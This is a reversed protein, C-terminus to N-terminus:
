EWSYLTHKPTHNLRGVPVGVHSLRKMLSFAALEHENAAASARQLDIVFASAVSYFVLDLRAVYILSTPGHCPQRNSQQIDQWLQCYEHFVTSSSTIAVGIRVAALPLCCPSLPEPM